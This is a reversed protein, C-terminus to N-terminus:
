RAKGGKEYEFTGAKMWPLNNGVSVEEVQGKLFFFKVESVVVNKSGFETVLKAYETLIDERSFWKPNGVYGSDTREILVYGIKKDRRVAIQYLPKDM